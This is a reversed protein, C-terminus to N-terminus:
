SFIAIDGGGQRLVQLDGSSLDIVTTPKSPMYNSDIILDVKNEIAAKIDDTNYFNFNNINLTVSIIASDIEKLIAQIIPSNDVRIGITKRKNLLIKPAIKTAKLIITWPGPTIKKLLRFANNDVKAYTAINKLNAVMLTWNHNKNLNRIKRVREVGAKNAMKVGIAYTSNTPYVIIGNNNLIEVTKKILRQPPNDSNITLLM